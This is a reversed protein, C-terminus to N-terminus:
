GCVARNHYAPRIDPGSIDLTRVSFRSLAQICGPRHGPIRPHRDRIIETATSGHATPGNWGVDLLGDRVHPPVHPSSQGDGIEGGMAADSFSGQVFVKAGEHAGRREIVPSAEAQSFRAVLQQTTAVARTHGIDGRTEAEAVESSKRLLITTL